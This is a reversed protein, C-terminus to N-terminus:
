AARVIDVSSACAYPNAPFRMRVLHRRMRPYDAGARDFTANAAALTESLTGVAENCHAADVGVFVQWRTVSPRSPTSGPQNDLNTM